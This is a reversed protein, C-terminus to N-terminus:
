YFELLKYIKYACFFQDKKNCYVPTNCSVINPETIFFNPNVDDWGTEPMNWGMTNIGYVTDKHNGKAEKSVKRGLKVKANRTAVM